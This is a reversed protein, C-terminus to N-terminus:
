RNEKYETMVFGQTFGGLREQKTAARYELDDWDIGYHQALHGVAELLDGLEETLEDRNRAGIVEGAEEAVKLRFLGPLENPVAVRYVHQPFKEPINDRVLKM